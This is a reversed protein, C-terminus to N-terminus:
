RKAGSMPKKVGAVAAAALLCVVPMLPARYRMSGLFLAHLVTFYGIPILLLGLFAGPIVRRFVGVLGLVLLPVYWAVMIIQIPRSAFEEAHFLPSWMREVKVVALRAMRGPDELIYTWARRSWEDNRQAENLPVMDAPLKITDQRPGGDAEPYVSEYLSIGELSTLRLFGSHFQAYNRMLWPWLLVFMVGVALAGGGLLREGRVARKGAGAKRWGIFAIWIVMPVLCGLAEARLYVAAGWMAGLMIWKAIGKKGSLGGPEDLREIMRVSLWLAAMLVFTFPIESLLSASFGVSLPDVAALGGALLGIRVGLRGGRWYTLGGVAGGLVAQVLLAARVSDGTMAFIGALFLPYGPMRVETLGNVEYARGHAIARGAAEYDQSDGLAGAWGPLGIPHLVALAMRLGIALGVILPLFKRVLARERAAGGVAVGREMPVPRRQNM